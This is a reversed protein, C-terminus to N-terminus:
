RKRIMRNYDKIPLNLKRLLASSFESKQESAIKKHRTKSLVREQTNPTSVANPFNPTALRSKENVINFLILPNKCRDERRAKNKDVISQKKIM